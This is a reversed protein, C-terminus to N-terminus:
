HKKRRPSAATTAPGSPPAPRFRDLIPGCLEALEKLTALDRKDYADFTYSQISALGCTKNEWPIPVYIMSASPRGVDGFPEAVEPEFQSRNRLYIEGGRRVAQISRPSPRTQTTGVQTRMGGLEDFGIVPSWERNDATRIHVFCCDWGVLEDAANLLARAAETASRASRMQAGAAALIASKSQERCRSLAPSIADALRQLLALDNPRFFEEAYSQVSIIGCVDSGTRLAAYMLSTAQPNLANFERASLPQTESRERSILVPRGDFLHQETLEEALTFNVPETCGDIGRPPDDQYVARFRTAGSRRIALMFADDHSWISEVVRRVIIAAETVSSTGSLRLGLEALFHNADTSELAAKAVRTRELAGACHDGLTQVLELDRQTFAHKHYSQFSLVGTRRSGVRLPVFILSMAPRSMDGFRELGTDGGPKTERLLLEPGHEMIGLAHDSPRREPRPDHVEICKGEFTDMQLISRGTKDQPSYVFISCSDWQILDAAAGVVIRAAEYPTTASSLQYTLSLLVASRREAECRALAPGVTDAIRQLFARSREDLPSDAPFELSLVGVIEKDLRIPARVIVSPPNAPTEPNAPCHTMLTRGALLTDGNPTEGLDMVDGAVCHKHGDITRVCLVDRYRRPGAWRVALAFNMWQFHKETLDRLLCAVKEITDCGALQLGSAALLEREQEARRREARDRSQALILGVAQAFSSALTEDDSSFPEDGTRNCLYICGFLDDEHLIPIGLFTRATVHHVDLGITELHAPVNDIRWTSRAALVSEILPKKQEIFYDLDQPRGPINGVFIPEKTEGSEDRIVIAAYSAELLGALTEVGRHLFEPGAPKALLKTLGRFAMSMPETRRSRNIRSSGNDAVASRREQLLDELTRVHEVLAKLISTRTIAGVFQGTRDVVGLGASPLELLRTAADSLPCDESVIRVPPRGALLQAFSLRPQRLAAGATVLGLLESSARDRNWGRFVAFVASTDVYQRLEGALADADVPFVQQSLADRATQGEMHTMAM